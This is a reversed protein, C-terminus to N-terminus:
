FGQSAKVALTWTVVNGVVTNIMGVTNDFNVALVGAFLFLLGKPGDQTGPESSHAVLVAGRVFWLFGATRILLGMTSYINAQNYNTYTLVNGQGFATNAM